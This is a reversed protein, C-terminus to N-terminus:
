KISQWYNDDEILGQAQEIADTIDFHVCDLHTGDLGDGYAYLDFWANNGWEVCKHIELSRLAEDNTVGAEVLHGADRITLHWEKNERAKYDNWVHLRMEGDCFVRIERDGHTVTAVHEHGTGGVYFAPDHALHGNTDTLPYEYTTNM